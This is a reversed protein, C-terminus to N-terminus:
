RQVLQFQGLPATRGNLLADVLHIGPYHTRTTLQALGIKKEFNAAERSGLELERLKFTKPATRGNAKVFHVVLDVLVNQPKRISNRLTFKVTVAGGIPVRKPAIHIDQVTVTAKAGYGLVDLAGPESRKIASRLAHRVIWRREEGAGRLWRKATAALLDPHDKGIDNLNNAVSRRVYLEPDDKLMELLQLVPRPDKQFARLRPAWPLRPRTGESVLRRVHPSPDRAWLALRELTAEPYRDLFRRISFEATFLQTLVYQARMSVEFHDVGFEAVFQVHPLFLFSAMGHAARHEHAQSTSALLIEIAQPYDDPLHRRLARAIQMGRATLALADYGDLANRIFDDAAFRPYVASISKAIVRPVSPGFQDKLAGAM